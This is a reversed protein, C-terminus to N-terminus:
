HAVAVQASDRCHGDPGAGVPVPLDYGAPQALPAEVEAPSFPARVIQRARLSASSGGLGRDPVRRHLLRGNRRDAVRRHRHAVREQARHRLQRPPWLWRTSPRAWWRFQATVRSSCAWYWSLLGLAPPDSAPPMGVAAPSCSVALAAATGCLGTGAGSGGKTALGAGLSPFHCSTTNVLPRGATRM